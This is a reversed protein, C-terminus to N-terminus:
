NAGGAPAPTVSTAAEKTPAAASGGDASLGDALKRQIKAVDEPEPKLTLAQDWQFRAERERGVKWLADGLHDNLVPDDPRLEVARELYRVADKYNGQKFHAWGLSDVIYGDDPKVAVAKEILAMGDKLHLGQDIWSYGLYNLVLPQDPYLDLARKLDKEAAPWNKLREYSTGRAYLYSWHRRDLKPILAIAQDYIGVAETYLKRSRLISGLADLAQLQESLDIKPATPQPASAAADPAPSGGQDGAAAAKMLVILTEQGVLGDAKIGSKEQFARVAKRTADGFRGDVADGINYGLKLLAGQVDRVVEGGSGAKLVADGLDPISVESAAAPQSPETTAAPPSGSIPKATDLLATLVARAEEDRDLSNLNFAKRIEIASELPSGKPIRDYIAIAEIYQKNAEHANALAALAFSHDPEIFLAMQLYLIGVGVAGEGILAEGLGYFVEALGDNPETVLLDIKAGPQIEARLARAMPHGEGQTKELHVKLIQRAAKTDGGNAVSRAYALATRLTRSDQDFVKEYAAKADGRRGAADAILARHYRLYFQAWEAQKPVVLLDLAAGTNKEALKTWALALASTLEGIPGSSAAKFHEEAKKWNTSRFETLGLFLRAMRHQPQLSALEEAHVEAKQWDGRSADMLMAQELLMESAPDFTLAGSYFAAAESLDNQGRAFRGALYSGSLTHSTDLELGDATETAFSPLPSALGLALAMAFVPLSPSGRDSRARM